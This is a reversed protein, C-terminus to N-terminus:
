RMLRTLFERTGEGEQKKYRRNRGRGRRGGAEEEEKQHEKSGESVFSYRRRDQRRTPGGSHCLPLSPAPPLSSPLLLFPIGPQSPPFPCLAFVALCAPHSTILVYLSAGNFINVHFGSILLCCLSDALAPRVFYVAALHQLMSVLVIYERHPICASALGDMSRLASTNSSAHLAHLM